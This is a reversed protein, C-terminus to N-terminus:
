SNLVMARKGRHVCIMFIFLYKSMCILICRFDSTQPTFYLHIMNMLSRPCLYICMHECAKIGMCISSICIYTNIYTHIDV